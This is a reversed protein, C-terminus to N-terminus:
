LKMELAVRITAATDITTIQDSSGAADFYTYDIVHDQQLLNSGSVRVQTKPDIKWLGYLDLSRRVALSTVENESLRVLGGQQFGFSGGVTLPWGQVKWDAGFNASLPIQKDLRNNPGPVADVSSWNRALNARLDVAPATKDLERLNIKAELEIGHVQADGNNFPRTVWRGDADLFVEQQIVDRIRRMFINTSVLGSNEFHREYALDLGWALEPKLDPNGESDPATPSNDMNRFRRAILDRTAPAKYTRALGFRIQDSKTNPVKWVTQVIPSLVGSHNDVAAIDNGTSRTQLGEWRLGTYASWRETIDWEDQVYFAVRQVEASYEQDLNDPADVLAIVDRQIRDEARRSSEGDWGTALAHTGRYPVRYKGSLTFGTDTALSNVHRLLSVDTDDFSEGPLVSERRNFFKRRNGSVGFKIELTASDELERTWTARARATETHFNQRFDSDGYLPLSGLLFERDDREGVRGQQYSLFGDLLLADRKNITWSVRPTFSATYAEYHEVSTTERWQTTQGQADTGILTVNSPSLSKQTKFNSALTYGIAEKKDSLQADINLAPQDRASSLAVKLDRQKERIVRKLIINISGAIAQASQDATATRAVEIREILDPALSDLSFGPATPEGNLLIQTYGNGLGRMRIEGGRGPVGSVTVGPVRKLVDGVTSDGFRTLEEQTIVIKAATSTRRESNGVGNVVVGQLEKVDIARMSSDTGKEAKEAPTTAAGTGANPATTPLAEPQQAAASSGAVALAAAFYIERYSYLVSRM